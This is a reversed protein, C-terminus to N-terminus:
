IIQFFICKILHLPQEGRKMIIYLYLNNIINTNQKTKQKNKDRQVKISLSYQM